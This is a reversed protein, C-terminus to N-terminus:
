DERSRRCQGVFEHASRLTLRSSLPLAGHVKVDYDTVSVRPPQGSILTPVYGVAEIDAQRHQVNRRLKMLLILGHRHSEDSQASVFNGTSYVVLAKRGKFSMIWQWRQLVHPHTGIIATAGADVAERALAEQRHSIVVQDELGWHPVLFVASLSPRASLQRIADLVDPKERYCDLVQNLKDAIGNTGYTCAVWGINTNRIRTIRGWKKRRERGRRTGVTILGAQGLHTLTQRVGQPGRDLAHNNGTSIVSFGSSKLDRALTYHYNFNLLHSPTSYVANDFVRGPYATTKQRYTINTALTGELNGYVADASKLLLEIDSWFGRYGSSRTLAIRQLPNQFILDGVFGIHMTRDKTCRQSEYGAQTLGEIAAVPRSLLPLICSAAVLVWRLSMCDRKTRNPVVSELRSRIVQYCDM